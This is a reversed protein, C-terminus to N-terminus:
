TQPKLGPKVIPCQFATDAGPLDPLERRLSAASAGLRTKQSLLLAGEM